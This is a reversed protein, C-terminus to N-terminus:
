FSVHLLMHKESSFFFRLIPHSSGKIIADDRSRNCQCKVVSSKFTHNHKSNVLIGMIPSM